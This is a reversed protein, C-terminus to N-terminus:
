AVTAESSPTGLIPRAPCSVRGGRIERKVLWQFIDIGLSRDLRGDWTNCLQRRQDLSHHTRCSLATNQM